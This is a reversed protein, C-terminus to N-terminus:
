CKSYSFLIIYSLPITCSFFIPSISLYLLKAKAANQVSDNNIKYQDVSLAQELMEEKTLTKETSNTSDSTGGKSDSTSGCAVMSLCFIVTLLTALIKKM